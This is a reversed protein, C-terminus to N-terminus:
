IWIYYLVWLSANVRNDVYIDDTEMNNLEHM